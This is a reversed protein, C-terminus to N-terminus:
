DAPSFSLRKSLERQGSVVSLRGQSAVARSPLTAAQMTTSMFGHALGSDRYSRYAGRASVAPTKSKKLLRAHTHRSWVTEALELGCNNPRGGSGLKARRVFLSMSDSDAPDSDELTSRCIFAASGRCAM